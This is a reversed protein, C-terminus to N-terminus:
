GSTAVEEGSPDSPGRHAGCLEAHRRSSGPCSAPAASSVVRRPKERFHKKLMVLELGVGTGVGFDCALSM